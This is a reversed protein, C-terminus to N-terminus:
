KSEKMRKQKFFDTLLQGCRDAEHGGSVLPKHHTQPHNFTQCGQEIAGTKPDYAGFYVADLRAWSIAGACMACPELTVFLSYGVLRKVNLLRCAEKIALLEAHATPDNDRETRNNAMAIIEYTESDFVVAGVPVEDAAAALQALEIGKELLAPNM